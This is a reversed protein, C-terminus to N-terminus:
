LKRLLQSLQATQVIEKTVLREPTNDSVFEAFDLIRKDKIALMKSEDLKAFKKDYFRPPKHMTGDVVCVDHPYVDSHFKDFWKGAIGGDKLSMRNYEPRRHIIEGTEMVLTQYEYFAKDGTVKKMIYRAVYAASQFTVNGISSFGVSWLKELSPSTYIPLGSPSNKLFVRDPFSYGFILAHFHPRANDSGYEGAMYYKLGILGTFKRLRKMFDQFDKHVLNSGYPLNEPSYTLTIFDNSDHLSAEHMCRIAWQKSRELRCGVCQGCPLTLNSFEKFPTKSHVSGLIKVGASTKVARLPSYCAM